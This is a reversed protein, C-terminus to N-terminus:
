CCSPYISFVKVGSTNWTQVSGSHRRCLPIHFQPWALELDYSLLFPLSFVMTDLQHNSAATDGSLLATKKVNIWIEMLCVSM